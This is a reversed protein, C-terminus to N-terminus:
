PFFRREPRVRLLYEGVARLKWSERSTCTQRAQGESAAGMSSPYAVRLVAERLLVWWLSRFNVSHVRPRSRRRRTSNM